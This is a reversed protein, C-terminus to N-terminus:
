KGEIEIYKRQKLFRYFNQNKRVNTLQIEKMENRRVTKYENRELKYEEKM